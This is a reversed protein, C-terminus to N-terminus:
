IVEEATPLEMRVDDYAGSEQMVTSAHIFLASEIHLTIIKLTHANIAFPADETARKLDNHTMSSLEKITYSDRPQDEAPAPGDERLEDKVEAMSETKM